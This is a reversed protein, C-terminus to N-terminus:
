PALIDGTMEENNERVMVKLATELNDFLDQLTLVRTGSWLEKTVVADMLVKGESDMKHYRISARVRNPNEETPDLANHPEIKIWAPFIGHIQRDDASKPM